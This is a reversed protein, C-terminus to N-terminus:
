SLLAASSPPGGGDRFEAVAGSEQAARAIAAPFSEGARCVVGQVAMRHGDPWVFEVGCPMPFGTIEAASM